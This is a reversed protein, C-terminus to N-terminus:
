LSTRLQGEDPERTGKVGLESELTDSLAKTHLCPNEWRERQARGAGPM